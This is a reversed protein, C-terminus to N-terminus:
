QKGDKLLPQGTVIDVGAIECFEALMEGFRRSVMVFADHLKQNSMTRSNKLLMTISQETTKVYSLQM